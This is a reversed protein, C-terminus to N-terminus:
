GLAALVMGAVGCAALTPLMGLRLRFMAIIAMASLAAARWDISSLVPLDPGIGRWDLEGGAPLRRPNPFYASGM